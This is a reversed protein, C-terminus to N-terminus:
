RIFNNLSKLKLDHRTISLNRNLNCYSSDPPKLPYNRKLNYILLSAQGLGSQALQLRSVEFRALSLENMIHVDVTELWCERTLAPISTKKLIIQTTMLIDSMCTIKNRGWMFMGRSWNWCDSKDLSLLGQFTALGPWIHCLVGSKERSWITHTPPWHFFPSLDFTILWFLFRSKLLFICFYRHLVCEAYLPLFIFLIM